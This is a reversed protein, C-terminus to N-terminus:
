CFFKWAKKWMPWEAQEAKEQEILAQIDLERRGTQLDMDKARIFPTKFWLKYPIYFALVVPAALYDSFFNSVLASASM